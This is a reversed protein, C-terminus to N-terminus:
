PANILGFPMVIYEYHGSHTRFDTKHIDDPHVRIQHYASCLDIKSFITAGHLEDLLEDINHIPYKDPIIIQNLGKYDVCMHWSDDKKKVLLVPSAFLSSSPRIFGYKLLEEVQNEIETKKTFFISIHAIIQHNPILYLLFPILTIRFPPLTKPEIFISDFKTILHEFEYPIIQNTGTDEPDKAM